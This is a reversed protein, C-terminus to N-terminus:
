HTNNGSLCINIWMEIMHTKVFAQSKPSMSLDQVEKCFQNLSYPQPSINSAIWKELESLGTNQKHGREM